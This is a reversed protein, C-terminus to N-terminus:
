IIIWTDHMEELVICMVAYYSSLVSVLNKFNKKAIRDDGHMVGGIKGISIIDCMPYVTNVQNSVVGGVPGCDITVILNLIM